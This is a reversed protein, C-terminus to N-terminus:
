DFTVTQLNCQWDTFSFNMTTGSPFGRRKIFFFHLFWTGLWEKNCKGIGHAEGYRIQNSIWKSTRVIQWTAMFFFVQWLSGGHRGEKGEVPNEWKVSATRNDETRDVGVNEIKKKKKILPLWNIVNVQRWRCLRPSYNPTPFSDFQCM